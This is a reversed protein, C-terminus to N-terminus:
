AAMRRDHGPDLQIRVCEGGDLELVAVIGLGRSEYSLAIAPLAGLIQGLLHSCSAPESCGEGRVVHGAETETARM